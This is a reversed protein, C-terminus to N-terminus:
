RSVRRSPRPSSEVSAGAASPLFLVEADRGAESPASSAMPVVDIARIPLSDDVVVPVSMMMKM